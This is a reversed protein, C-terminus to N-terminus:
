LCERWAQKGNRIDQSNNAVRITGLQQSQRLNQKIMSTHEAVTHRGLVKRFEAARGADSDITQGIQKPM